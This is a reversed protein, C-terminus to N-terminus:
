RQWSLTGFCLAISTGPHPCLRKKGNIDTKGKAYHECLLELNLSLLCVLFFSTIQITLYCLIAKLVAEEETPLIYM